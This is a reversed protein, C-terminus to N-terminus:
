NGAAHPIGTRRGPILDLDEVNSPMNNVVLGGTFEKVGPDRITMELKINGLIFESKYAKKGLGLLLAVLINLACAGM